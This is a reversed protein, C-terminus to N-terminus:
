SNGNTMWVTAMNANKKRAEGKEKNYWPNLLPCDRIKLLKISEPLGEEPLCQLVACNEILMRKLSSLHCLGRYDLKKLNPCDIIDLKTLSVPLLGEGPLCEVDEKGICFSQISPNTGWVGKNLSAFLKSCNLLSIRYLKSPLCGDSLEVGPCNNIGLNNLSPLLASMHKPMSKLKELEEIWFSMLQPASLGENPFSEFECCKKITLNKLHGHPHGQSIM